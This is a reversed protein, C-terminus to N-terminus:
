SVFKLHVQLVLNVIKLRVNSVVYHTMISYILQKRHYFIMTLLLTSVMGFWQHCVPKQHVRFLAICLILVNISCNTSVFQAANVSPSRVHMNVTSETEFPGCKAERTSTKKQKHHRLCIDLSTIVQMYAILNRKRTMVPTSALLWM